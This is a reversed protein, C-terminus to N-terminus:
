HHFIKHLYNFIYNSIQYKYISLFIDLYNKYYKEEILLREIIDYDIEYTKENYTFKFTYTNDLIDISWQHIIKYVQEQDISDFLIDLEKISTIYYITQM